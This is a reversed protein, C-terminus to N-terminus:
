ALPCNTISDWLEELARFEEDSSMREISPLTM